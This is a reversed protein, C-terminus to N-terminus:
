AAGTRPTPQEPAGRSVCRWGAVPAVAAPRRFRCSPLLRAAGTSTRSDAGLVVGGDYTVAMITTQARAARAADASAALCPLSVQHLEAACGWRYQRRRGRTWCRGTFTWQPLLPRALSAETM